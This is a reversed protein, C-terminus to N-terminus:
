PTTSIACRFGIFSNNFRQGNKYRQASHFEDDASGWSGGRLVRLEGSEPGLPNTSPSDQYYTEGYWDAVWEWVNGSMDFAGYISASGPYTGVATTDAIDINLLSSDPENNGWPYTRGDTGRAAKEWEAETPLRRGVWSCYSAADNWSVSIVPYNGFEPNYYYYERTNSKASRPLRCQNAKVCKAYMANTVETQDIWYADLTVQHIPQEDSNVDSGMTFEGGPVYLLTMGDGGMITSGIGLTPTVIPTETPVPTGTPLSTSTFSVNTSTPMLPTPTNEPPIAPAAVPQNNLLYNLGFGGCVLVFLVVGGIGLMRQNNRKRNSAGFSAPSYAVPKGQKPQGESRVTERPASVVLAEKKVEAKAYASLVQEKSEEAEVEQIRMPTKEAPKEQAVEIPTEDTLVSDLVPASLIQEESKKAELKPVKPKSTKAKTAKPKPAKPKPVKPASTKKPSVKKKTERKEKEQSEPEAKNRAVAQLAIIRDIKRSAATVKYAFEALRNLITQEVTKTGFIGINM